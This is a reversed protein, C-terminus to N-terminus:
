GPQALAEPCAAVFADVGITLDKAARFTELLASVVVRVRPALLRRHPYHLVYERSGPDHQEHLVIQLRGARLHSLVHHLAIQAIGAGALAPEVIAEPENISLAADPSFGRDRHAEIPRRFLWPRPKGGGLRVGLCRHRALDAPRRPVGAHKLYGPSAVLVVPLKCIRRAVWAGDEIFGGRIGIDYGEAVLDVHRNELDVEIKLGPHKVLLKPLAPLVWRRGFAIGVSIRVRGAPEKADHSVGEIAEDLLALARRAEGLFRAGEATLALRRTSRNFLRVGLEAELKLVSKSVAAPTVELRRAALTLSGATATEVFAFLGKLNQM